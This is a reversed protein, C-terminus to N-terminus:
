LGFGVRNELHGETTLERCVGDGDAVLGSDGEKLFQHGLLIEGIQVAEDLDVM